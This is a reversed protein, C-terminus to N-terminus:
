AVISEYTEFISKSDHIKIHKNVAEIYKKFEIHKIEDYNNLNKVKTALAFIAKYIYPIESEKYYRYGMIPYIYPEYDNRYGTRFDVAVKVCRNIIRGDIVGDIVARQALQTREIFLKSINREYDDVIQIPMKNFFYYTVADRVNGGKVFLSKFFDIGFNKARIENCLKLVESYNNKLLLYEIIRIAVDFECFVEQKSDKNVIMNDHIYDVTVELNNTKYICKKGCIDFISKIDVAFKIGDNGYFVILGKKNNIFFKFSQKITKLEKLRRQSIM